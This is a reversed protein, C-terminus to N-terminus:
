NYQLDNIIKILIRSIFNANRRDLAESTLYSVIISEFDSDYLYDITEGSVNKFQIFYLADEENNGTGIYMYISFYYNTGDIYVDSKVIRETFFMEGEASYASYDRIHTLYDITIGNGRITQYISNDSNLPVPIQHITTDEVVKVLQVGMENTPFVSSAITEGTRLNWTKIRLRQLNGNGTIYCSVVYQAGSKEVISTVEEDPVYGTEMQWRHERELNEIRDREVVKLNGKNTLISFLEEIVYNTLENEDSSNNFLAIISNAPLKSAISESASIVATDIESSIDQMKIETKIENSVCSLVCIFAVLLGIFKKSM